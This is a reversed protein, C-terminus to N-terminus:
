DLLGLSRARQLAGDRTSVGLKRYISRVQTKITNPSVSLEFSIRQQTDGEVLRSLVLRERVSLIAPANDDGSPYRAAIATIMGEDARPRPGHAARSVLATLQGRPLMGFPRISGTLATLALARTFLADASRRDGLLAHASAAVLTALTATRPSHEDGMGLCPAVLEIAHAAEGADLLLRASWAAPCRTHASDPEIRAIEARAAVAEHREVLLGIRLDDHLMRPLNPTEWERIGLQLEQLLDMVDDDAEHAVALEALALPAYETGTTEALLASLRSHLGDGDGHEIAVAIEALRM